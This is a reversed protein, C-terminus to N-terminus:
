TAPRHDGSGGGVPLRVGLGCQVPAIWRGTRPEQGAAVHLVDLRSAPLWTPNGGCEITLPLDLIRQTAQLDVHLVGAHLPGAGFYGYDLGSLSCLGGGVATNLWSLTSHRVGLSVCSWLAFFTRKPGSPRHHWRSIEGEKPWVVLNTPAILIRFTAGLDRGGDSDLQLSFYLDKGMNGLRVHHTVEEVLPGWNIYGTTVGVRFPPPPVEQAPSSAAGILILPVALLLLVRRAAGGPVPRATM